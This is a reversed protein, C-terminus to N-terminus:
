AKEYIPGSRLEPRPRFGRLYRQSVTSSAFEERTVVEGPQELLMGLVRLPQDQLRIRRVQKLLEGSRFDVEFDAFRVRTRLWDPPM